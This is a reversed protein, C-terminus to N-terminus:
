YNISMNRIQGKAALQVINVALTMSMEFEESIDIAAENEIKAIHAMDSRRKQEAKVRADEEAAIKKREATVAEEKEREAKAAADKKDQEAQAKDAEAKKGAEVVDM